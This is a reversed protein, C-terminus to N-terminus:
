PARRRRMGEVLGRLAQSAVAHALTVRALEDLADATIETRSDLSAVKGELAELSRATELAGHFSAKLAEIESSDAM